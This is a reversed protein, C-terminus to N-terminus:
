QFPRQHSLPLVLTEYLQVRWQAESPETTLLTETIHIYEGNLHHSLPQIHVTWQHSVLASTDTIHFTSDM